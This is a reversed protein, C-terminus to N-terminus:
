FLRVALGVQLDFWGFPLALVPQPPGATAIELNLPPGLVATV